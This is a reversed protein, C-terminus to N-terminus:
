RWSAAGTALVAQERRPVRARRRRFRAFASSGSGSSCRIAACHPPMSRRTSRTAAPFLQAAILLLVLPDWWAAHNAYLITPGTVPPPLGDRAVRVATFHRRVYRRVYRGFWRLLRPSYRRTRIASLRLAESRGRAAAPAVGRARALRPGSHRGRDLGVDAGDARGPGPHASGGAFYLGEVDPSRNGPKFAGLFKGHSALGYIAGDLVRYRQEIDAPTLAAEFVIREELDPMGGSTKLKDIIRERYPGLMRQWDHEPRLYPTHVLM